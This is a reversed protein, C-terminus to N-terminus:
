HKGATLVLVTVIMIRRSNTGAWGPQGDLSSYFPQILTHTHTHTHTVLLFRNSSM